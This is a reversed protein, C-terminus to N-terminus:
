LSMLSHGTLRLGATSGNAKTLQRKLTWREARAPLVAELNRRVGDPIANRLPKVGREVGSKVVNPQTQRKRFNGGSDM